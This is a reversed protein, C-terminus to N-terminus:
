IARAPADSEVSEEEVVPQWRHRNTLDLKAWLAPERVQIYHNDLREIGQWGGALGVIHCPLVLAADSAFARRLAHPTFPLVNARRCGTRPATAISEYSWRCGGPTRWVAGPVGLQIRANWGQAAACDNFAHVYADLVTSLDRDLAVERPQRKGKEHLFLRVRDSPLALWDSGNLERLANVRAGSIGLITFFVQNRLGLFGPEASVFELVKRIDDAPPTYGGRQRPAGGSLRYGTGVREAVTQLALDLQRHPDDHIIAQLEPYILTALSRLASRRQALTWRSLRHEGDPHRDDVLARGLLQPDIFLAALTAPGDALREAADIVAQCQYRYASVTKRAAGLAVLRRAYQAFLPDDDIRSSHQSRRIAPRPPLRRSPVRVEPLSLQILAGKRQRRTDIQPQEAIMAGVM